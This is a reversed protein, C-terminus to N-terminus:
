GPQASGTAVLIVSVLCGTAIFASLVSLSYALLRRSGGVSSRAGFFFLGMSLFMLLGILSAYFYATFEDLQPLTGRALTIMAALTAICLVYGYALTRSM